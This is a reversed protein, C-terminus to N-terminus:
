NSLALWLPRWDAKFRGRYEIQVVKMIVTMEGGRKKEFGLDM